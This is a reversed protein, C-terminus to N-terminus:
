LPHTGYKNLPTKRLKLISLLILLQFSVFMAANTSLIVLNWAGFDRWYNTTFFLISSGSLYLFLGWNVRDFVSKKGIGVVLHIAAYGILICNSVLFGFTNFKLKPVFFVYQVVAFLLYAITIQSIYKRAPAIDHRYLMSLITFQGLFYFHTLFVNPVGNEALIGSAFQVLMLWVLLCLLWRFTGNLKKWSIILLISNLLLLFDGSYALVQYLKM